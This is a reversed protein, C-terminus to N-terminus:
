KEKRNNEDPILNPFYLQIYESTETKVTLEEFEM